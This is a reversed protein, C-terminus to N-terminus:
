ALFALHVVIQRAGFRPPCTSCCQSSCFSLFSTSFVPGAVQLKMVVFVVLLGLISWHHKCTRKKNHPLSTVSKPIESDTISGMTASSGCSLDGVRVLISGLTACWFPVFLLAYQLVHAVYLKTRPASHHGMATDGMCGHASTRRALGPNKFPPSIYCPTTKGCELCSKVNCHIQHAPSWHPAMRHRKRPDKSIKSAFHCGHVYAHDDARLCRLVTSSNAFSQRLFCLWQALLNDLETQAKKGHATHALIFPASSRHSAGSSLKCHFVQPRSIKSCPCAYILQSRALDASAICLLLQPLSFCSAYVHWTLISSCNDFASRPSLYAHKLMHAVLVMSSEELADLHCSAQM